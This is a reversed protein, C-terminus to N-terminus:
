GVLEHLRMVTSERQDPEVILTISHPSMVMRSPEIHAQALKVTVKHCLESGVVGDCTVSVSSSPSRMRKIQGHSEISRILTDLYENDATILIRTQDGDHASALVQPWSLKLLTLHSHLQSIGSNLSPGTVSIHEVRPWSNVSLIRESEMKEEEHIVMTSDQTSNFKKIYLPVRYKAGLEVSRYHLVKAGWFCMEALNSYSVARLLRAGSVIRPDATLVGDVEKIIECRQAELAKAMAVATTDSGGRGLTTIEKTRPDVGQFGALIVVRGRGLEEHVRIPRVDEIRASSHAGQTLVGAQSGTFSIAEVGLDHLAMSLLAMSKREGTSILMDLERRNPHPSVQYALQILEDTMRGMASVVVVVQPGQNKLKAIQEAVVRIKAPSELCVGGYKQVIISQNVPM